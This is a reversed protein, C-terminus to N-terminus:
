VWQIIEKASFPATIKNTGDKGFVYVISEGDLAEQVLTIQYALETLNYVRNDSAKYMVALM